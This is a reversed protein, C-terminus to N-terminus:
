IPDPALSAYAAALARGYPEWDLEMEEIRRRGLEGLRRAEGPDRLVDVLADALGRPDSSAALRLSDGGLRRTEKLDFAVCGRGISMYDMIKVMSSLDNFPTPPDPSVGVMCRALLPAYVAPPQFGHFHVSAVLAPDTLGRELPARAPGDGILDLQADAMDPEAKVMAWAELLVDLGDHTGMVGVYGVRRGDPEIGDALGRLAEVDPANWLVLVRDATIRGRAVVINRCTENVTLVIDATRYSAAELAITLRHLFRGKAGDRGFKSLSLEPNPDHQDFVYRAGWLRGLRGLVWFLDPPNCGHIVDVPGTLRAWLLWWSTFAMSPLYEALYGAAGSAERQPYRLVDIGDIRERLRRMGKGGRPGIVVVQWGADRLTTAELWVRRDLPVPLNEVLIV